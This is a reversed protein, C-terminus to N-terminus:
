NPSPKTNTALKRIKLRLPYVKDIQLRIEAELETENMIKRMKRAQERINEGANDVAFNKAPM